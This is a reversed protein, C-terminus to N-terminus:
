KVGKGASYTFSGNAGDTMCVMAYPFGDPVTGSEGGAGTEEYPMNAPAGAPDNLDGLNMYFTIDMGVGAGAELKFKQGITGPDVEFTYGFVGNMQTAGLLMFTRHVRYVCTAAGNGGQPIVISGEVDQRTVKKKKAASASGGFVALCMVAIILLSAGAKLKRM